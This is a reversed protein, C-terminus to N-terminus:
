DDSPYQLCPLAVSSWLGTQQRAELYFKLKFMQDIIDGFTSNLEQTQCFMTSVNANGVILLFVYCNIEHSSATFNWLLSYIEM